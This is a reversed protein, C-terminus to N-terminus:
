NEELDRKNTPLPKGVVRIGNATTAKGSCAQLPKGV